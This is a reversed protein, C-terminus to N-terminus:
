SSEICGGVGLRRKHSLFRDADARVSLRRPSHSAQRPSVVLGLEAQTALEM